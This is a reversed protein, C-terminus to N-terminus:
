MKDFSTAKYRTGRFAAAVTEESITAGIKLTLTATKKENDVTVKEV